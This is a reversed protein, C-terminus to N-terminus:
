LQSRQAFILMVGFAAGSPIVINGQEFHHPIDNERFLRAAQQLDTVDFLVASFRGNPAHRLIPDDGLKSRAGDPTWVSIVGRSTACSFGLNDELQPIIGSYSEMFAICEQPKDHTIVVRAVGITGNEHSQMAPNWFNEPFHQQCVFFSQNPMEIAHSFSLTFAVETESGDPRKGKRRFHFPEFDGIGAEKFRQSDAKADKSELVLMSMGDGVQSLWDQVHAGFSFHRPAHPPPSVDGGLTILELFTGDFQVIHNETGWPHRNRAGIQFGLRRYFEVQEEIKCSPLVLHDIGRNSHDNTM